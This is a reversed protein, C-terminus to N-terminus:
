TKQKSPFCWHGLRFRKVKENHTSPTVKRDPVEVPVEDGKPLIQAYIMVLARRREDYGPGIKRCAFYENTVELNSMLSTRYLKWGVPVDFDGYGKVQYCLLSEDSGPLRGCCYPEVVSVRAREGIGYDFQIVRAAEIAACIRKRLSTRGRKLSLM